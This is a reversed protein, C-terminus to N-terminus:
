WGALSERRSDSLSAWCAGMLTWFVLAPLYAFFLSFQAYVLLAALAASLGAFDVRRERDSGPPAHKFGAVWLVLVMLFWAAVGIWGTQVRAEMVMNHAHDYVDASHRQQAPLAEHLKQFTRHGYGFGIWPRGAHDEAGSDIMMITDNWLEHRGSLSASLLRDRFAGPLCVLLILAAASLSLLGARFRWSFPGTVVFVFVAVLLGLMVSRTQLWYLLVMVPLMLLCWVICSRENRHRVANTLLILLGISYMGAAITPYGLLSEFWRGDDLVLSGHMADMVMRLGDVAAIMGIAYGGQRLGRSLRETPSGWIIILGAAIVLEVLKVWQRLSFRMDVSFVASVLCSALYLLFFLYIPEVHLRQKRRLALGITSLSVAWILASKFGSSPALMLAGALVVGLVDVWAVRWTAFFASLEQKM